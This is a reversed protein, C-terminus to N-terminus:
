TTRGFASRSAKQTLLKMAEELCRHATQKLDSYTAPDRASELREFYAAALGFYDRARAESGYPIFDTGGQFEMAGEVVRLATAAGKPQPPTHHM